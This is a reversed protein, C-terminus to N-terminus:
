RTWDEIILGEVRRFERLNNTVLTAGLSLAHAAILTDLPGIPTGRSALSARLRGYATAAAVDFPLAPVRVVFTDILAHYRRAASSKDAGFRLEALTIASIALESSQKQALRSLVKPPRDRFAFSVINTDLLYM